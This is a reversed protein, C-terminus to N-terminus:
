GGKLFPPLYLYNASLDYFGIILGGKRFPSKPPNNFGEWTSKAKKLPRAIEFGLNETMRFTKFSRLNNSM